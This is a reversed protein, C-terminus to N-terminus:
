ISTRNLSKCSRKSQLRRWSIGEWNLSRWDRAISRAAATRRWAQCRRTISSPKDTETAIFPRRRSKSRAPRRNWTPSKARSSCEIVKKTITNRFWPRGRRLFTLILPARLTVTRTTVIVRRLLRDRTWTCVATTTIWSARSSPIPKEPSTAASRSRIRGTSRKRRTPTLGARSAAWATWRETWSQIAVEAASIASRPWRGRNSPIRVTSRLPRALGSTIGAAAALLQIAPLQPRLFWAWCEIVSGSGPRLPRGRLRLAKSDGERDSPIKRKTARALYARIPPRSIRGSIRTPSGRTTVATIRAWTSTPTLLRYFIILSSKSDKISAKNSLRVNERERESFYISSSYPAISIPSLYPVKQAFLLM